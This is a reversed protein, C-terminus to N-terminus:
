KIKEKITDHLENVWANYTESVAKGGEAAGMNISSKYIIKFNNRSYKVQVTATEKGSTKTAQIRSISKQTVTWGLEKGLSLIHQGIELLEADTTDNFYTKNYNPAGVNACGTLLLILLILAFSINNKM